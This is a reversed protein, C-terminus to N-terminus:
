ETNSVTLEQAAENVDEMKDVTSMITQELPMEGLFVRQTDSTQLLHCTCRSPM